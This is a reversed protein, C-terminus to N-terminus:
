YATVHQMTTYTDLIHLYTTSSAAAYKLIHPSIYAYLLVLSITSNLKNFPLRTQLHLLWERNLEVMRSYFPTIFSFRRHRSCFVYREMLSATLTMVLRLIGYALSRPYPGIIWASPSISWPKLIVPPIFYSVLSPQFGNVGQLLPSGAQFWPM